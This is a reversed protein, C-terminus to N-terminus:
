PEVAEVAVTVEAPEMGASTARLRLQGPEGTPRLIALCRGERTTCRPVRFSAPQNPSGNAQAALEGAGDVTFEVLQEADPVRCGSADVLEVTVYALDNRDAALTTRDALLRVAVAPGTTALTTEGVVQGDTLGVARLEGAAYPVRFVVTQTRPDTVPQEGLVQGNLELRVAQCRTYVNVQLPEGEHGAWNWTRQEDPWAWASLVETTGEPMPRHVAMEITSRRWVVDRYYSQPKKFGCLDLDGCWANHWPWSMFFPNPQNSLTTHALGSEGLYDFATWVFDGVVYPHQEVDNWYALADKPYSESGYMVRDPHRTHDPEYFQPLYNYGALDLHTFASDSLEAWNESVRGWDSCIAQTVPRTTDHSLVAQRLALQTTEAAFQEPIENGISWMIVSPHNRDRRVMSAIDRQYWDQFFRHYDQSNGIKAHNWQDFAEDIVVVGLRDCADLLAPSPPNHSTRIANYGNAKLLEVKREEARDIAAAGLPGNDHHLCGGKLLLPEGNLRLGYEAAYTLKRVGFTTTLTDLTRDGALLQVEARYLTPSDLSWLQPTTLELRQPVVQQQGAALTVQRSTTGVTNGQADLLQVRLTADHATPSDNQVEVAVDVTARDRSVDPTTVFVGNTPLYCNGTTTLWVHRFIGSGSYWRSNKGLNRVRVALVNAEGAPRLHSTLDYEFSTYGYPHNGLHHGNIWVDADMYVGDFRIAVREAADAFTFHKRYWGTGGLVYGTKDQGESLRPDFPGVRQGTPSAQVIGGEGTGDFVRVALQDTGDGRVMSAPVSYRREVDWATQYNPPFSGRGGIPQGNLWVQDVDDIRGLLLVLDKGAPLDIQRRFWGYTENAQINSHREWSNPLSVQQWRSDNLTTSKWAPNDGRHFRWTGTVVDVEHTVSERSPLDEISWDHPVDLTRWATDDFEPSEAGSHEGLAFQWDADFCQDRSEQATTAGTVSLVLLLFLLRHTM